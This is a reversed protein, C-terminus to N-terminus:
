TGLVLTVEPRFRKDVCTWPWGTLMLRKARDPLRHGIGV